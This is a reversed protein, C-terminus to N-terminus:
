NHPMALNAAREEARTLDEVLDFAIDLLPESMRGGAMAAKAAKKFATVSMGKAQQELMEALYNKKNKKFDALNAEAQNFLNELLEKLNTEESRTDASFDHSVIGRSCSVFFTKDGFVFSLQKGFIQRTMNQLLSVFDRRAELGLFVQQTQNARREVERKEPIYAIVMKLEDGGMQPQWFRIAIKGPFNFREIKENFFDRIVDNANEHGVSDNLRKLDDLDVSLVLM